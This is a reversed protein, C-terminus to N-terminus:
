TISAGAAEVTGAALAPADDQAARPAGRRAAAVAAGALSRAGRGALGSRRAIRQAMAQVERHTGIRLGRGLRPRKCRADGTVSRVRHQPRERQPDGLRLGIEAAHTVHTVPQEVALRVRTRVVALVSLGPIQRPKSEDNLLAGFFEVHEVAVLPAGQRAALGRDAGEVGCVNV